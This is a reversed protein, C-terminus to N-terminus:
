LKAFFERAEPASYDLDYMTCRVEYMPLRMKLAKAKGKGRKWAIIRRHLPDIGQFDHFVEQGM